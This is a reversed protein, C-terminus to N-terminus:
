RSITNKKQFSKRLCVMSTQLMFSYNTVPEQFYKEKLAGSTLFPEKHSDSFSVKGIFYYIHCPFRQIQLTQKWPM